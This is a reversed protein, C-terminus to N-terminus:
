LSSSPRLIAIMSPAPASHPSIGNENLFKVRGKIFRLEAKGYLFKHFYRTDTRAFILFVVLRGKEWEQFGKEVWASIQSYPPNVFNREKWEIALGDFNPREPCPDFDFNFEADLKNYLDPPTRWNDNQKSFLTKQGKM